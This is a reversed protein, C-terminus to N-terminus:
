GIFLRWGIWALALIVLSIAAFEPARSRSGRLLQVDRGYLEQGRGALETLKDWASQLSPSVSLHSWHDPTTAIEQVLM